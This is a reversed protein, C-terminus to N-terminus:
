SEPTNKKKFSMPLSVPVKNMRSTFSRNARIFVSIDRDLRHVRILTGLLTKRSSGQIRMSSFNISLTELSLIHSLPMGTQPTLRLATHTYTPRLPKCRNAKSPRITASQMSPSRAQATIPLFYFIGRKTRQSIAPIRMSNSPGCTHSINRRQMLVSVQLKEARGFDQTYTTAVRRFHWLDRLAVSVSIKKYNLAVM